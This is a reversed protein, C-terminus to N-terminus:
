QRSATSVHHHQVFHTYTDTHTREVDAPFTKYSDTQNEIAANIVELM